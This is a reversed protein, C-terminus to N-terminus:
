EPLKLEAHELHRTPFSLVNKVRFSILETLVLESFSLGHGPRTRGLDTCAGPGRQRESSGLGESHVNFPLGQLGAQGPVKLIECTPM